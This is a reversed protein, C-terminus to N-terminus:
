FKLYAAAKRLRKGPRGIDTLGNIRGGGARRRLIRDVTAPGLGPVRLLEFRGARNIDLPFREPHTRAWQEKPDVTLSLNGSDDFPIENGAFRYKRMLFDVQYLRHERVLLEM